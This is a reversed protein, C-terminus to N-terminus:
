ARSEGLRVRPDLLSYSLDIVLNVGVFLLGAYLVFGEVVPYDRALIADVALKGVGPWAFVTEVIVAGAALHGVSTGFATVIPLLAPRLAHRRIVARRRVGKARATRVYDEGLVELVTSRTFRALVAMPTVALTVVPLVFSTWDQRGAVPLLGLQVAFTNVLLLALWFSPMAAGAVAGMRVAHDLLRNRNVAAVTGMVLGLFLALIAAPIALQITAPIRQSFETVVPRRTMYSIGLNGRVARGLWNVYQVPLPGELGLEHRAALIQTRSPPHDMTRRLFAVAPDGPTINALAFTLLSIGILTPVLLLARRLLYASM